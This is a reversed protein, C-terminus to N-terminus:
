RTISVGEDVLLQRNGILVRIDASPAGGDPNGTNAAMPSGSVRRWRAELDKGGDPKGFNAASGDAGADGPASSARRAQLLHPNRTAVWCKVGKGPIVDVGHSPRVWSMDQARSTTALSCGPVCLNKYLLVEILPFFFACIVKRSLCKKGSFTTLYCPFTLDFLM